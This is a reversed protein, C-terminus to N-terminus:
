LNFKHYADMYRYKQLINWNMGYPWKTCTSNSFLYYKKLINHMHIFQYVSYTCTYPYILIHSLSRTYPISMYQKWHRAQQHIIIPLFFYCLGIFSAINELCWFSATNDLLAYHQESEVKLLM